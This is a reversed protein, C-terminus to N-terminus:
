TGQIHTTHPAAQFRLGIVCCVLESKSCGLDFAMKRVFDDFERDLYATRLVRENSAREDLDTGKVVSLSEIAVTGTMVSQLAAQLLQRLLEAGVAHQQMCLRAIELDVARDIYFSRNEQM